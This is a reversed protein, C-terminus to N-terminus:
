SQPHCTWDEEPTPDYGIKVENSGLAAAISSDGLARM